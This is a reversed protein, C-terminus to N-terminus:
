SSNHIRALSLVPKIDRALTPAERLLSSWARNAGHARWERDLTGSAVPPRGERMMLLRQLDRRLRLMHKTRHTPILQRWYHRLAIARTQVRKRVLKLAHANPRFCNAWTNTGKIWKGYVAIHTALESGLWRKSRLRSESLWIIHISNRKVRRGKGICLLDLDSNKKNESMAYSGYVIIQKARRQLSAWNLGANLVTAKALKLLEDSKTNM